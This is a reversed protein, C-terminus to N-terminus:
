AAKGGSNLVGISPAHGCVTNPFQGKVQSQRDNGFFLVLPTPRPGSVSVALSITDYVKLATQM